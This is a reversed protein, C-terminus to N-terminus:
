MRRVIQISQTDRVWFWSLFSSYIRLPGPFPVASPIRSTTLISGAMAAEAAALEPRGDADKISCFLAAKMCVWHDFADWSQAATAGVGILPDGATASLSYTKVYRVQVTRVTDDSVWREEPSTQQLPFFRRSVQLSLGRLLVPNKATMAIVGASTTTFSEITDFRDGGASTYDTLCQSIGLALATDIQTTSWRTGDDDLHDLVVTRAQALTLTM